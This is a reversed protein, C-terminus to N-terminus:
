IVTNTECRYNYTMLVLSSNLVYEIFNYVYEFAAGVRDHSLGTLRAYEEQAVTLKVEHCCKYVEVTFFYANRTILAEKQICAQFNRAISIKCSILM